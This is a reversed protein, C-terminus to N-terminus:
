LGECLDGEARDAADRENRARGRCPYEFLREISPLCSSCLHVQIKTAHEPFAIETRRANCSLWLVRCTTSCRVLEPVTRVARALKSACLIWSYEGCPLHLFAHEDGSDASNLTPM